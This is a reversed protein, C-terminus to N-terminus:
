RRRPHPNPERSCLLEFPKENYFLELTHPQLILNLDRLFSDISSSATQATPLMEDSRCRLLMGRWVRVKDCVSVTAESGRGHLRSLSVTNNGLGCAM